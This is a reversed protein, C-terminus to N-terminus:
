WGKYLIGTMETDRKAKALGEHHLKLEGILTLQCKKQIIKWNNRLGENEPLNKVKLQQEKKLQLWQPIYEADAYASFMRAISAHEASKKLLELAEKAYATIKSNAAQIPAPVPDSM